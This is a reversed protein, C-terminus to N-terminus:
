PATLAVLEVRSGDATLELILGVGPAYFKREETGPELATFNRTVLCTGTCSAAPVSETATVSLVEAVDEAEGLSVEERYADGVQPDALVLIGAKAGDRGAKWSGEISVLEPAAPEDGDFTEREQAIEGCYWVNGELDQAYWDDTDEIVAGDEKVLDRVVRCTVGEILKTKETVTVTITEDGGEYVWRTGPVLPFYPNPTVSKGIADPDVFGAPQFDPDFREEGILDCVALRAVFQERCLAKGENLDEGADGRCDRREGPDSVNICNGLAIAFDDRVESRCARQASRATKSCFAISDAARVQAGPSGLALALLWVTVQLARTCARTPGHDVLTNMNM